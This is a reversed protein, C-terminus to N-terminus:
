AMALTEELKAVFDAAQEKNLKRVADVVSMSPTKTLTNLYAVINTNSWATVKKKQLIALSEKLWQMDIYSTQGEEAAPEVVEGDMTFPEIAKDADSDLDQPPPAEVPHGYSRMKGKKFFNVGHRQYYHESKDVTRQENIASSVTGETMEEAPTPRYGALVVVWALRNRFAKAGARTQAM